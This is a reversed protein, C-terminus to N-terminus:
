EALTAGRAMSVRRVIIIRVIISPAPLTHLALLTLNSKIKALTNSKERPLFALRPPRLSPSSLHDLAFTYGM